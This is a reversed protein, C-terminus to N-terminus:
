KLIKEGISKKIISIIRWDTPDETNGSLMIYNTNDLLVTVFKEEKDFHFTEITFFTAEQFCESIATLSETIFECNTSHKKHLAPEKHDKTECYRGTDVNTSYFGFHGEEINHYDEDKLEKPIVGHEILAQYIKYGTIRGIVKVENKAALVKLQHYNM